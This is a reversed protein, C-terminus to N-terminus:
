PTIFVLKVIDGVKEFNYNLCSMGSALSNEKGILANVFPTAFSKALEDSSTFNVIKKISNFLDQTEKEDLANISVRGNSISYAFAEETNKTVTVTSSLYVDDPIMKGFYKLPFGSFKKEKFQRLDLKIVINFDTANEADEVDTFTVQIISFPVEVDGLKLAAKNEANAMFIDILAGCEKDSLEMTPDTFNPVLEGDAETHTRFGDTENGIIYEGITFQNNIEAQLSLKDEVAFRNTFKSEDVPTALKKIQGGVTILDVGYYFRVFLYGATAILVLVLVFIILGKILRSLFSGRKEAM